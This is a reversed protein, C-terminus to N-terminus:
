HKSDNKKCFNFNQYLKKKLIIKLFYLIIQLLKQKVRYSM